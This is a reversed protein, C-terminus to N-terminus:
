SSSDGRALLNGVPSIETPSIGRGSGLQKWHRAVPRALVDASLRLGTPGPSLDASSGRLRWAAPLRPVKADRPCGETRAHYDGARYPKGSIAPHLHM